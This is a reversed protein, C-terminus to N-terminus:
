SMQLKKIIYAEAYITLCYCVVYTQDLKYMKKNNVCLIYMLKIDGFHNNFKVSYCM